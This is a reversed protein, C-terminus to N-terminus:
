RRDDVSPARAGPRDERRTATELGRATANGSRPLFSRAAREAHTAMVSERVRVAAGAGSPSEHLGGLPTVEAGPLFEHAAVLWQDLADDPLESQRPAALALIERLLGPDPQDGRDPGPLGLAAREGRERVAAGGVLCQERELGGAGRFCWTSLKATDSSAGLSGEPGGSSALRTGARSSVSGAGRSEGYSGSARRSMRSCSVLM